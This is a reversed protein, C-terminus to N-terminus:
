EKWTVKEWPEISGEVVAFLPHVDPIEIGSIQALQLPDRRALKAKLHEWEYLLQGRTVQINGTKRSPNIKTRKFSYGRQDAEDALAELYNAIAALINFLAEKVMDTVPRTTDGPVDRLKRGKASGSIVRLSM